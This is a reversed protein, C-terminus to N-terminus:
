REETIGLTKNIVSYITLEDQFSEEDLLVARKQM